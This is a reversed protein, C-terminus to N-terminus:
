FYFGMAFYKLLRNYLCQLAILKGLSIKLSPFNWPASWKRISNYGFILGKITKWVKIDKQFQFLGFDKIFWLWFCLHPHSFWLLKLNMTQHVSVSFFRSQELSPALPYFNRLAEKGQAGVWPCSLVFQSFKTSCELIVTGLVKHTSPTLCVSLLLVM